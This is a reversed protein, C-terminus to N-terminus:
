FHAYFKNLFKEPYYFNNKINHRSNIERYKNVWGYLLAGSM